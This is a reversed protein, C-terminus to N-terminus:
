QNTLTTSLYPSSQLKICTRYRITWYAISTCRAPGYLDNDRYLPQSLHVLCKVGFPFTSAQLFKALRGKLNPCPFISPMTSSTKALATSQRCFYTSKEFTALRVDTGVFCM